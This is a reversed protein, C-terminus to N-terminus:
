YLRPDARGSRVPSRLRQLRTRSQWSQVGQRGLYRILHPSCLCATTWITRPLTTFARAMVQRLATRPTRTENAPTRMPRSRALPAVPPLGAVHTGPRSLQPTRAAAAPPRGGDERMADYRVAAAGANKILATQSHASRAIPPGRVLACNLMSCRGM